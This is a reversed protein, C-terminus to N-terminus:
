DSQLLFQFEWEQELKPDPKWEFIRSRTRSRSRCFRLSRVSDVGAGHDGRCHAGEALSEGQSLGRNVGSAIAMQSTAGAGKRSVLPKSL